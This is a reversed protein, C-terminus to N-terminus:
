ENDTVVKELEELFERWADRTEGGRELGYEDDEWGLDSKSGFWWEGSEFFTELFAIHIQELTFLKNM